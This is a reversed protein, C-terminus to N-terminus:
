GKKAKRRIMGSMTIGLTFGVLLTVLLLLARPMTVDFFVLHTEVEETNQVVVITLLIVLALIILHKLTKM